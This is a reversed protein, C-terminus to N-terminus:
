LLHQLLSIGGTGTLAALLIKWAGANIARQVDSRSAELSEIRARMDGLKGNTGKEGVIADIRRRNDELVARNAAIKQHLRTELGDLELELKDRSCMGAHIQCVQLSVGGAPTLPM